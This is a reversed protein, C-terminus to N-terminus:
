VIIFKYCLNSCQQSFSQFHFLLTLCSKTRIHICIYDSHDGVQVQALVDKTARKALGFPLLYNRYYQTPIRVMISFIRHIGLFFVIKYHLLFHTRSYAFIDIITLRKWLKFRKTWSLLHLLRWLNSLLFIMWVNIFEQLTSVILSEWRFYGPKVDVVDGAKGLNKVPSSLVIQTTRTSPKFSVITLQRSRSHIQSHNYHTTRRPSPVRTCLSRQQQQLSFSLGARGSGCSRTNM